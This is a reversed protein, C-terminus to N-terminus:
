LAVDLCAIEVRYRTQVTQLMVSGACISQSVSSAQCRSTEAKSHLLSLIDEELLQLYAHVM